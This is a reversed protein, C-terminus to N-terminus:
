KMIGVKKLVTEAREKLSFPIIYMGNQSRSIELKWLLEWEEDSLGFEKKFDEIHQASTLEAM